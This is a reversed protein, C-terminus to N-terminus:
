SRRMIDYALSLGTAYANEWDRRNGRIVNCSWDRSFTVFMPVSRSDAWREAGLDAPLMLPGLGTTQAVFGRWRETKDPPIVLVIKTPLDLAVLTELEWLLNQTAGVLVVASGCQEFLEIVATKWRENSPYIRKAGLPPLLEGPAGLTVVPGYESLAQHLVEEFFLKQGKFFRLWGMVAMTPLDRFSRQVAMGDDRFSRLLIIPSRSDSRRPDRKASALFRRGYVTLSVGFVALAFWIGNYLFHPLFSPFHPALPILGVLAVVGALIGMGILLWGLLRQFGRRIGPALTEAPSDSAPM